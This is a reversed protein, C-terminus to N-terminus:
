ATKMLRQRFEIAMMAVKRHLLSQLLMKTHGEMKDQIFM